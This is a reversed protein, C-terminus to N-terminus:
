YETLPVPPDPERVELAIGVPLALHAGQQRADVGRRMGVHAHGAGIMKAALHTHLRSVAPPEGGLDIAREATRPIDAPKNEFGRPHLVANQFVIGIDTAPRTVQHGNTIVEGSSPRLLGAILRLLTSKGSGSRGVIAVFQGARVHLDLNRLVQTAGFSKALGRATLPAGTERPAAADITAALSM